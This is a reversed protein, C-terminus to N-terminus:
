AQPESCFERLIRCPDTTESELVEDLFVAMPIGPVPGSVKSSGGHVVLGHVQREGVLAKRGRRGQLRDAQERVFAAKAGVGGMSATVEILWAEDQTLLLFDVEGRSRSESSRDQAYVIRGRCGAALERVHRLLASEFLRGKTDADALPDVHRAFAAVLGPDTGHIKPRGRLERLTSTELRLLRSVLFSEELHGLWSELTPRQISMTRALKDVNLEKSSQDMLVSFLQRFRSRHRAGAIGDLIQSAYERTRDLVGPSDSHIANDPFGGACLYRELDVLLTGPTLRGDPPLQLERFERFSLPELISREWRGAGEAMGSQLELASSGTALIHMEQLDVAGKLQQAWASERPSRLDQLKQVEDLVLFAPQQSERYPGWAELIDAMSLAGDIRPDDVRVFAVQQPEFGGRAERAWALVQKALETKGVQRLGTLLIARTRASTKDLARECLLRFARRRYPKTPPPPQNPDRWWPNMSELVSCLREEM